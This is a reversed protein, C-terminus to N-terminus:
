PLHPQKEAIERNGYAVVKQQDFPVAYLASSGLLLRLLLWSMWVKPNRSAPFRLRFTTTPLECRRAWNRWLGHVEPGRTPQGSIFM